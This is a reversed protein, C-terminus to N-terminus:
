WATIYFRVIKKHTKKIIGPGKQGTKEEGNVFRVKQDSSFTIDQVLHLRLM